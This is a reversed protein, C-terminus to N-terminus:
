LDSLKGSENTRAAFRVVLLLQALTRLFSRPTRSVTYVGHLQSVSILEHTRVHPRIALARGVMLAALM